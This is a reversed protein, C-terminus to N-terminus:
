FFKRTNRKTKNELPNKMTSRDCSPIGIIDRWLVGVIMISGATLQTLVEKPRRESGRMVLGDLGKM